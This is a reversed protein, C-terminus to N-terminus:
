VHERGAQARKSVAEDFTGGFSEFHALWEYGRHLERRFEPSDALASHFIEGVNLFAGVDVSPEGSLGHAIAVLKEAMPDTIVQGARAARVVFRM